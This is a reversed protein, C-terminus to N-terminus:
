GGISWPWGGAPPTDSGTSLVRHEGAGLSEGGAMALRGALDRLTIIVLYRSDGFARRFTGGMEQQAVWLADLFEWRTLGAHEDREADELELARGVAAVFAQWPFLVDPGDSDAWLVLDGALGVISGTAEPFAEALVPLREALLRAFAKSSSNGTGTAAHLDAVWPLFGDFRLPAPIQEGEDVVDGQGELADLRASLRQLMDMVESMDSM